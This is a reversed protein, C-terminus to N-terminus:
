KGQGVEGKAMRLRIELAWGRGESLVSQEVPNLSDSQGSWKPDALYQHTSRGYKDPLM